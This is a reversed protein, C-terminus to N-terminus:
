AIRDFKVGMTKLTSEFLDTTCSNINIVTGQSVVQMPNAQNPNSNLNIGFRGAMYGISMYDNGNLPQNNNKLENTKVIYSVRVPSIM